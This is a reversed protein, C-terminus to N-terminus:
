FSSLSLFITQKASFEKEFLGLYADNFEAWGRSKDVVTVWVTKDKLNDQKQKM